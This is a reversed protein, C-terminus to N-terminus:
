RSPRPHIQHAARSSRRRGLLVPGGRRAAARRAWAGRHDIRAGDAVGSRRSHRSRRRGRRAPAASEGRSSSSASCRRGSADHGRRSTTAALPSCAPSARWRPRTIRVHAAPDRAASRRGHWGLPGRLRRAGGRDLLRRLGGQRPLQAHHAAHRHLQGAPIRRPGLRRQLHAGRRSQARPGRRAAFEAPDIAALEAELEARQAGLVAGAASATALKVRVEGAAAAPTGCCPRRERLLGVLGAPRCQARTPSAPRWGQPAAAAPDILPHTITKTAVFPFPVVGGFLDEEGRIGLARAADLSAITADPVVYGLDVPRSTALGRVEDLRCGLLAALRAAVGRQTAREHERADTRSALYTVRRQSTLAPQGSAM